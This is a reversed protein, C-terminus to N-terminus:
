SGKAKAEELQKKEADTLETREGYKEKLSDALEIYKTEATEPTLGEDVYKQWAKRKLKEAFALLGPAPRSKIDVNEAVKALGYLELMENENPLSKLFKIKVKAVEFASSPM